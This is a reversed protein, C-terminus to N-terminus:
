TAKPPSEAMAAWVLAVIWGLITWGLLLNLIAIAPANRKKRLMAVLLPLFYLGYIIVIILIREIIEEISIHSLILILFVFGSFIVAFLFVKPALKDLPGSKKAM